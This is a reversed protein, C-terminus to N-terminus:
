EWPHWPTVEAWQRPDPNELRRFLDVTLDEAPVEFMIKPGTRPPRNETLILEHNRRVRVLNERHHDPVNEVPWFVEADLDILIRWDDDVGIAESRAIAGSQGPVLDRVKM